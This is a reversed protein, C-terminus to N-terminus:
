AVFVRREDEGMSLFRAQYRVAVAQVHPFDRRRWRGGWTLGLAEAEEGLADWFDRGASWYDDAHVVDVAAGLCHMSLRVGAGRDSLAQAREPSRYGEWLLPDHGQQRLRQFLTEIKAAFAPLLLGPDRNVGARIERGDSFSFGDPPPAVTTPRAGLEQEMREVVALTHLGPLGDADRGELGQRRQFAAWGTRAKRAWDPIETAM